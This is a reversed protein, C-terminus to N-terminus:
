RGTVSDERLSDEEDAYEILDNSFTAYVGYTTVLFLGIVWIWVIKSM